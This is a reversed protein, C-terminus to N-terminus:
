ANRAVKLLISAATGFHRGSQRNNTLLQGVRGLLSLNHNQIPNSDMSSGWSRRLDECGLASRATSAGTGFFRRSQCNRSLQPAIGFVPRKLGPVPTTVTPQSADATAYPPYVHVFCRALLVSRWYPFFRRRTYTPDWGGRLKKEVANVEEAACLNDTGTVGKTSDMPGKHYLEQNSTICDYPRLNNVDVIGETPCFGYEKLISSVRGLVEMHPVESHTQIYASLAEGDQSVIDVLHGILVMFIIEEELLKRANANKDELRLTGLHKLICCMIIDFGVRKSNDNSISSCGGRLQAQAALLLVASHILKGDKVYNWIEDVLNDTREALLKVTDLFIKMEPMCLLHIIKYIYDRHNQYPFLNDELYKHLCTNEVAVHLPLLNEIIDNGVTRVNASAGHHFLLKIMDTSFREAAEHLPFYGYPNICNPNAHQGNLRPVKGELIVKVCRLADHSIMYTLTQSTITYSWTMGKNNVFLHLFSRVSDRQLIPRLKPSLDYFAMRLSKPTPDQTFIDNPRSKAILLSREFFVEQIKKFDLGGPVSVSICPYGPYKSSTRFKLETMGKGAGLESM